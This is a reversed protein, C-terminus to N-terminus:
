QYSRGNHVTLGTTFDLPVPDVCRSSGCFDFCCLKPGPCDEDIKCGPSQTVRCALGDEMRLVAQPCQGGDKAASILSGFCFEENFSCKM